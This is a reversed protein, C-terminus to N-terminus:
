VLINYHLCADDTVRMNDIDTNHTFVEGLTKRRWENDQPIYYENELDGVKGLDHHM